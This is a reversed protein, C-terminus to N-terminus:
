EAGSIPKVIIRNRGAEKAEYLAEDVRGIIREVDDGSQPVAQTVGVSITLPKTKPFRARLDQGRLEVRARLREAYVEAQEIATEPLLAIFEEGGYRGIIDIERSASVLVQAINRLIEDGAQHGYTDNFSKFYDIDVMSVSLISGYRRSRDLERQFLAMLNRRNNVGTLEDREALARLKQAQKQLLLNSIALGIETALLGLMAADEAGAPRGSFVNDVTIMGHTKELIDVPAAVIGSVGLGRLFELDAGLEDVVAPHGDRIAHALAGGPALPFDALPREGPRVHGTDDFANRLDLRAREADYAFFLARDVGMAARVGKLAVAWAEDATALVRLERVSDVIAKAADTLTPRAVEAPPSAPAAVLAAEAERVRDAFPMASEPLGVLSSADRLAERAAEVAAAADDASLAAGKVAPAPRGNRCCGALGSSALVANAASVIEVLVRSAEPVTELAGPEAHHHLIADRVQAPLNWREALLAGARGHDITMMEREVEDLPRNEAASRRLVEAYKKGSMSAFFAQGVSHLLGAAYAEDPSPGGLRRALARCAAASAVYHEVYRPRDLAAGREASHQAALGIAIRRVVATGLHKLAAEVSAVSGGRGYLPSNAVRLVLAALAQDALAFREAEPGRLAEGGGRRAQGLSLLISPLADIRQEVIPQPEKDKATPLDRERCPIV